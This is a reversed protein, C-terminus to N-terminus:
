FEHLLPGKLYERFKKIAELNRLAEELSKVHGEITSHYIMTYKQTERGSVLDPIEGFNKYKQLEKTLDEEKPEYWKLFDHNSLEVLSLVDSRIPNKDKGSIGNIAPYEKTWEPHKKNM